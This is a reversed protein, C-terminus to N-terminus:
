IQELAQCLDAILDDTDEIGLCLRVLEDRIGLTLREEPPVEAYGMLALPSIMTEVGGLSPGITPIKLADIFHYAREAGGDIEFSVVGGFGQMTASALGHDRHSELSPHWVKRVKPHDALFRAVAVGNANHRAVRLALTKLGRLILYAAHADVVGGLMGQAQRLPTTLDNRGIIVGAMVDNHGALYKTVSQIVLDVGYALARLNIPTAFTTDIITKVQHRQAIEVLRGLDICHNFPNTPSESFILRTNPRIAAELAAYDGHPVISAEIGYRPLFRQCFQLTSYYCEDTLIMHDGSSLMLLLTSTVAAMGSSVLIADQAGELAAIKAEVARVTPNGYRGYEEREPEDWFMHEETFNILAETNRFTYVSTQFIPVILSHHARFRQEGAHVAATSPSSPLKTKQEM